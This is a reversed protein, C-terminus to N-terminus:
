QEEPAGPEQKGRLIGAGFMLLGFMTVLQARYTYWFHIQSHNALVLYWLYPYAAVMLMPLCALIRGRDRLKRSLILALM